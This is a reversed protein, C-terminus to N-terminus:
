SIKKKLRLLSLVFILLGLGLLCVGQYWLVDLGVGKLFLSRVITAFYKVPIMHTCLQIVKPMNEIPFIIGSLLVMSLIFFFTFVISQEQTSSITSIFLGLGLTSFLFFFSFLFLLFISGKIPVDFIVVAATIVLAVDILGIGIFPSLKGLLLETRTIPTVFLQELTGAEKERVLSISTLNTTLILLIMCIVGPVFFYNSILAPNYWIRVADDVITSKGIDRRWTGMFDGANFSATDIHDLILRSSFRRSIISAYAMAITAGNSETGDLLVQVQSQNGSQLKRQFDVPIDIGIKIKGEDLLRCLENRSATYFKIDFYGNHAFSEVYQRSLYTRDQDLIGTPTNKIEFTAAYGFVMLEIIPVVFLLPTLKRDRRLQHLEKITISLIRRLKM